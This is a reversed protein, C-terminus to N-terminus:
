ELIKLGPLEKGALFQIMASGGSCVFSFKKDLKKSRLFEVTDGGGVVSFARSELIAKAIKLTGKQYKKEEIKGLPGAWFITKANKIKEEFIRITKEGLDERGDVPFVIKEPFKIKMKKIKKSILNGVLVWDSIKCLNDLIEFKEKKKGGIISVLPRKPNKKIKKLVNVEEILSFGAFSPLFKAIKTVSAHDRHCVSLADLIFVDGLNALRKAFNEDGKEEEPYFRINELLLIEGEKLEEVMKEVKEGIAENAKKIKRKLLKELAKKIEDLRLKKVVKGEPRGLHTIIIIKSKKNILYKITPLSKEIRFTDLIKGKKSLPCNFDVRLIVKKKFVPAKKIGKM